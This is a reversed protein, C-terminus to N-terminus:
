DLTLTGMRKLFGIVELFAICAKTINHSVANWMNVISMCKGAWGRWMEYTCTFPGAKPAPYSPFSNPINMCEIEDSQKKLQRSGQQKYDDTLKLSPHCEPPRAPTPRVINKKFILWIEFGTCSLYMLNAKFLKYLWRTGLYSGILPHLM